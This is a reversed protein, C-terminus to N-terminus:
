HHRGCSLKIRHGIFFAHEFDHALQDGLQPVLRGKTRRAQRRMQIAIQAEAAQFADFQQQPKFFRKARPEIFVHQGSGLRHLIQDGRQAGRIARRGGETHTRLGGHARRSNGEMALRFSNGGRLRKLFHQSMAPARVCRSRVQNKVLVFPFGRRECVAFKKFSGLADRGIEGLAADPAAIGDGQHQRRRAVKKERERARQKGARCRHRNVRRKAGVPYCFVRFPLRRDQGVRARAQQHREAFRGAHGLQQLREYWREFADRRGLRQDLRAGVSWKPRLQVRAGVVEGQQLVCGAGRAIGLAHHERVGIQQGVDARDSFRKPQAVIVDAHAPQRKIM